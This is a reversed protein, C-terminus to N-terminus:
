CPRVKALDLAVKVEALRLGLLRAIEEPPVGQRSLEEVQQRLSLGGPREGARAQGAAFIGPSAQIRSLTTLRETVAQTMEEAAALRKEWQAMKQALEELRDNAPRAEAALLALNRSLNRTRFLFFVVAGVLLLELAVQACLWYELNQM